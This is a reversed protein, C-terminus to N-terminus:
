QPPQQGQHQQGPQAPQQQQQQQQQPAPPAAGFGQHESGPSPTPVYAPYVQQGEAGPPPPTPTFGPQQQQPPPQQGAMYAGQPPVPMYMYGQPPPAFGPPLPASPDYYAQGPQMPYPQGPYPPVFMTQATAPNKETGPVGSYVPAPQGPPGGPGGPPQTGPPPVAAVVAGGATTPNGLLEVPYQWRFGWKFWLKIRTGAGLTAWYQKLLVQDAPSRSESKRTACIMWLSLFCWCVTGLRLASKGIMMRRFWCYSEVFGLLFISPLITAVVIIWTRVAVCGTMAACVEWGSWYDDDDGGSSSSSGGSGSRATATATPNTCSKVYYSYIFDNTPNSIMTAPVATRDIFVLVSSDESNTVYRYTYVSTSTSFGTIHPRVDYPIYVNTYTAVTFPTPCSTPATYTIPVNYLTYLSSRTTTTSVLDSSPVASAPLYLLVSVVDDYTDTVTRSSTPTATPTIEPALTVTRSYTYTYTSYVSLSETIVRYETITWFAALAPQLQALLAIFIGLRAM